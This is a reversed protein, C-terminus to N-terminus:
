LRRKHFRKAVMTLTPAGPCARPGLIVSSRGLMELGPTASRARLRRPSAWRDLSRRWRRHAIGAAATTSSTTTTRALAPPPEEFDCWGEVVRGEGAVAGLDGATTDPPGSAGTATPPRAARHAGLSTTSECGPV